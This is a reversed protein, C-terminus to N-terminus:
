FIIVDNVGKRKQRWYMGHEERGTGGLNKEYDKMFIYSKLTLINNYIM